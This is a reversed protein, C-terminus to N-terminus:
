EVVGPEGQPAFVPPDIEEQIDTMLPRLALYAGEKTSTDVFPGTPTVERPTWALAHKAEALLLDPFGSVVGDEWALLEDGRGILAFSAM